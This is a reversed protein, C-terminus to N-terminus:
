NQQVSDTESSISEAYVSSSALNLFKAFDSDASIEKIKYNRHPKM